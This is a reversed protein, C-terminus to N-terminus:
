FSVSCLGDSCVLSFFGAGAPPPPHHHTIWYGKASSLVKFRQDVWYNFSNCVMLCVTAERSNYLQQEKTVTKKQPLRGTDGSLMFGRYIQRQKKSGICINENNKWCLFNQKELYIPKINIETEEFPLYNKLHLVSRWKRLSLKEMEQKITLILKM